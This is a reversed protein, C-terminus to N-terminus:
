RRRQKRKVIIEASQNEENIILKYKGEYNVGRDNKFLLNIKYSKKFRKGEGRCVRFCFNCCKNKDLLDIELKKKNIYCEIITGEGINKLVSIVYVFYMGRGIDITFASYRRKTKRICTVAHIIISVESVGEKTDWKRELYLKLIDITTTVILSLISNVILLVGNTLESDEEQLDFFSLLKDFLNWKDFILKIVVFSILFTIIVFIRKQIKKDM